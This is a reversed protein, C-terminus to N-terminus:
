ARAHGAPDGTPTVLRRLALMGMGYVVLGALCAFAIRGPGAVVARLTEYWPQEALNAALTRLVLWAATALQSAVGSLAADLAARNAASWAVSVAMGVVLVAAAALRARSLPPFSLVGVPAPATITVRAMVRDVLDPRPALHPVRALGDLVFRDAAVLGQCQACTELHLQMDASLAESHFADLDDSTLHQTPWTKM